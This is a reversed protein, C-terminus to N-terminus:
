VCVCMCVCVCVYVCVCVCVGVCGGVRVCVRVRVGTMVNRLQGCRIYYGDTPWVFTPKVCKGAPKHRQSPLRLVLVSGCSGSAAAGAFLYPVHGM